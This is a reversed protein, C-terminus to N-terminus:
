ETCHCAARRNLVRRSTGAGEGRSQMVKEPQLGVTCFGALEGCALPACRLWRAGPSGGGAEFEQRGVEWLGGQGCPVVSAIFSSIFALVLGTGM